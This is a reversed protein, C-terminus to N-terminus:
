PKKRDKLLTWYVGMAYLGMLGLTIWHTWKSIGMANREDVLRDHEIKRAIILMRVDHLLDAAEKALVYSTEDHHWTLEVQAREFSHQADFLAKEHLTLETEALRIREDLAKMKAEKEERAKKAQADAEARCRRVEEDYAREEERRKAEEATLPPPLLPLDAAPSTAVSPNSRSKRKRRM